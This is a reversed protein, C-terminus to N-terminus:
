CKLCRWLRVPRVLGSSPMNPFIERVSHFRLCTVPEPSEKLHIRVTARRCTLTKISCPYASLKKQQGRFCRVDLCIRRPRFFSCAPYPRGGNCGPATLISIALKGHGPVHEHIAREFKVRVKALNHYYIKLLFWKCSSICVWPSSGFTGRENVALTL